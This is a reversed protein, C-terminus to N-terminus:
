IAPGEDLAANEVHRVRGGLAEIDPLGPDSGHLDLDQLRRYRQGGPPLPRHLDSFELVRSSGRIQSLMQGAAILGGFDGLEITRGPIPPHPHAHEVVIALAGFREGALGLSRLSRDVQDPYVSVTPLPKEITSQRKQLIM